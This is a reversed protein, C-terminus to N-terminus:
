FLVSNHYRAEWLPNKINGVIEPELFMYYGCELRQYAVLSLTQHM